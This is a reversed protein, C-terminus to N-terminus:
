AYDARADQQLHVIVRKRSLMYFILLGVSRVMLLDDLVEPM